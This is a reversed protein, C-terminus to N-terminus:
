MSFCEFQELYAVQAYVCMDLVDCLLAPTPETNKVGAYVYKFYVFRDDADLNFHGLALQQNALQQQLLIQAKHAKDMEFPYQFYFQIFDSGDLEDGMPYISLVLFQ